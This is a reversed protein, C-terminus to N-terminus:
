DEEEDNENLEGLERDSDQPEASKERTPSRDHPKEEDSESWAKKRRGM